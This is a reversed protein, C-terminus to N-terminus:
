FDPTRGLERIRKDYAKRFEEGFLQGFDNIAQQRIEAFREEFLKWLKAERTLPINAAMPSSAQLSKELRAPDFQILMAKVAAKMGELMALQHAKLDDVAEEIAREPPMYGRRHDSHLLKLLADETGMSFKLPNNNERELTTVDTRMAHKFELRSQLLQILGELAGHFLEGSLSMYQDEPLNSFQRSDLQASRLFAASSSEGAM